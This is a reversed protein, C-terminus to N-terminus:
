KSTKIKRKIGVYIHVPFLIMMGGFFLIRMWFIQKQDPDIALLALAGAFLFCGIFHLGILVIKKTGFIDAAGIEVYRLLGVILFVITFVLVAYMMM